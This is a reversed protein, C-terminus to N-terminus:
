QHSWFHGFLSLVKPEGVPSPSIKSPTWSVSVSVELKDSQNVKGTPAKVETQWQNDGDAVIAGLKHERQYLTFGRTSQAGSSFVFHYETDTPPVLKCIITITAGNACLQPNSLCYNDEVGQIYVGFFTLLKFTKSKDLSFRVINPIKHM